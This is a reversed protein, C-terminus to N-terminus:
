PRTHATAAEMFSAVAARHDRASHAIVIDSPEADEVPVCVVGAPPPIVLSAPLVAIARGIAVLPFLQAADAVEPGPGTDAEVGTWRSFVEGELDSLRVAPRAALPHYAPLVAVRGETRLTQHALGTLDDFPAYLLALDARGDHLYDTRDTPGGFFIDVPRADARQAYAALIDSLLHADGGPKIVLRLHERAGAQRAQSTAFSLASIAHKGHELLAQGAPTLAVSRSTRELLKVGLHAELRQITKSLAPQAIHLVEAARGFHLEEAVAIFYRLERSEVHDM